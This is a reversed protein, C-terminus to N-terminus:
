FTQYIFSYVALVRDQLLQQRLFDSLFIALVWMGSLGNRIAQKKNQKLFIDLFEPKAIKM